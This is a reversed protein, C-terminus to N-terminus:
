VWWWFCTRSNTNRSRSIQRATALNGGSSWADGPFTKFVKLTNSTSNYWVQGEIIESPDTALVQIKIGKTENYTTM